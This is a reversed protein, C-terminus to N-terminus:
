FNGEENTKIRKLLSILYHRRNKSKVQVHNLYEIAVKQKDELSFTKSEALIETNEMPKKVWFHFNDTESPDTFYRFEPADNFVKFDMKFSDRCVWYGFQGGMDSARLQCPAGVSYINNRVKGPKHIHGSLVLDFKELTKEEINTGKGVEIGSTDKQGKFDTHLLLINKKTKSLTFSNIVEMIGENHTLYPVGYLVYDEMEVYNFDLNHLNKISNSLTNIYSPSRRKFTNTDKMDHNGSIAYVQIPYRNFLEIFWPQFISWLENSISEPDHFMDGTFVLPCKKASAIAFVREMLKMQSVVRRNNENYNGWIHAHFDSFVVFKM